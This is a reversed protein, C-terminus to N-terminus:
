RWLADGHTFFYHAVFPLGVLATSPVMARSRSAVDEARNKEQWVRWRRKYSLHMLANHHPEPM